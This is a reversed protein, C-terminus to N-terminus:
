CVQLASNVWIMQQHSHMYLRYGPKGIPTNTNYKIKNYYHCIMACSVTTRNTHFITLHPVLALCVQDQVKSLVVAAEGWRQGSPIAITITSIIYM